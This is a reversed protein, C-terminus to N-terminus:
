AGVRRRGTNSRVKTQNKRRASRGANPASAGSSSTSGDQDSSNALPSGSNGRETATLNYHSSIEGILEDWLSGDGAKEMLSTRLTEVCEPIVLGRADHILAMGLGEVAALHLQVMVIRFRIDHAEQDAVFNRVRESKSTVEMIITNARARDRITVMQEPMPEQAPIDAGPAAAVDALREREQAGWRALERADVEEKQWHGELFNAAEEARAEDGFVEFMESIMLSRLQQTDQSQLGARYLNLGMEDRDAWNPVRIHFRPVEGAQGQYRQPTFPLTMRTTLAITM